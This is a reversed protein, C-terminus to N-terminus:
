VDIQEGTAKETLTIKKDEFDIEMDSIKERDFATKIKDLIDDRFELINGNVFEECNAELLPDLKFDNPVARLIAIVRDRKSNPTIRFDGREFSLDLIETSSNLAIDM